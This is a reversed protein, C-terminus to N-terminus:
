PRVASIHRSPLNLNLRPVLYFFAAVAFLSYSELSGPAVYFFLVMIIILLVLPTLSLNYKIFVTKVTVNIMILAMATYAAFPVVMLPHGNTAYLMTNTITAPVNYFGQPPVYGVAEM